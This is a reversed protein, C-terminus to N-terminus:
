RVTEDLYTAQIDAIHFLLALPYKYYVNSLIYSANITRSDFAGMHWNIAMSEERTLKMFGSIMYVSKEGHGYPLNDDVTFYPVKTWEGDIKVNRFDEKYTNVKCIDHLLSIVAISEESIKDLYNEGFENKIINKFRKYVNISHQVLGGAYNSHFKSSAPAKYFDSTELFDLLGDKGERKINENFIKLFEEKAEM